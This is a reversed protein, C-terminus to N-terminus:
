TFYRGTTEKLRHPLTAVHPALEDSYLCVALTDTVFQPKVQKAIIHAEAAELLADKTSVKPQPAGILPLFRQIKLLTLNQSRSYERLPKLSHTIPQDRGPFLDTQVKDDSTIYARYILVPRMLDFKLQYPWLNFPAKSKSAARINLYYDIVCLAFGPVQPDVSWISAMITDPKALDTFEFLVLYYTAPDLIAEFEGDHRIGILWKSDDKRDIHTSACAPCEPETGAVREGCQNCIGLQDVRYCTKIEAFRNNPLVLDHGRAGSRSGPFGTVVSALHQGIYGMRAQATQHTIGSWTNVRKRLDIYLDNILQESAEVTGLAYKPIAM